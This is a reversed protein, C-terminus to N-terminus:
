PVGGAKSQVKTPRTYRFKRAEPPLVLDVGSPAEGVEFARRDAVAAPAVADPGAREARALRLLDLRLEELAMAHVVLREVGLDLRSCGCVVGIDSPETAENQQGTSATGSTVDAAPEQSKLANGCTTQDEAALLRSRSM